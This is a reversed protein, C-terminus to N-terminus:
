KVKIIIREVIVIIEFKVLLYIFDKLVQVNINGVVVVFCMGVEYVFVCWVRCMSVFFGGGVVVFVNDGIFIVFYMGSQLYILGFILIVIGVFSILVFYFVIFEKFLGGGKFFM